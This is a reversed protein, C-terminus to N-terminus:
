ALQKQYHLICRTAFEELVNHLAFLEFLLLGALKELLYDRTDLVNM